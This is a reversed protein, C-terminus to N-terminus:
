ATQPVFNDNWESQDRIIANMIILLKRMCATIAVKFPKPDVPRTRLQNYFAAIVPNRRIATVAAMYLSKRVTARGGWIMRKGKMSGSDRNFPALGVLCTIQKPKLSGLEPLEAILTMSTVSGIGPVSTLRQRNDSWHTNSDILDDIDQELEKLEDNLWKIHKDVRPRMQVAVTQLRNKEDILMQTLQRRRTVHASLEIQQADKLPRVEPKITAAFHALMQADIKDTKALVGLARAFDRARKPNIKAVAYEHLLLDSVVGQELGGTAEIVILCNSKEVEVQLWEVLQGRGKENYKYTQVKKDGWLAVDFKTKAVDIGIFQTYETAEM